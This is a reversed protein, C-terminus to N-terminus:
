ALWLCLQLAVLCKFYARLAELVGREKLIIARLAKPSGPNILPIKAFFVFRLQLGCFRNVIKISFKDSVIQANRTSCQGNSHIIVAKADNIFKSKYYVGSKVQINETEHLEYQSFLIFAIANSNASHKKTKGCAFLRRTIVVASRVKHGSGEVVDPSFVFKQNFFRQRYTATIVDMQM